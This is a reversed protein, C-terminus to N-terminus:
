HLRTVPIFHGGNGSDLFYLLLNIFQNHTYNHTFHGPRTVIPASIFAVAIM